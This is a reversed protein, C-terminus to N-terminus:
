LSVRALITVIAYSLSIAILGIATYTVSKWAKKMKSEDWEATFLEYAIYLSAGVLILPLAVKLLLSQILTLLGELTMGSSIISVNSSEEPLINMVDTRNLAFLSSSLLFSSLFTIILFFFKQMSKYKYAFNLRIIFNVITYALGAIVLGVFAYILMKTAKKQKEDDGSTMMMQLGAYTAAIVALVGTISIMYAIIRAIMEGPTLKAIDPVLDPNGPYDIPINAVAFTVLPLSSLLISLIIRRM